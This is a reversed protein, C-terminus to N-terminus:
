DFYNQCCRTFEYTTKSHYINGSKCISSEFEKHHIADPFFQTEFCVAGHKLYIGGDKGKEGNLFNGTCLQLGPLDTYVSMQIGSEASELFAVKRYGKGKLVYNHDYGRGFLLAQYDKGVDQGIAKPARFDMPTGGVSVMEGTPISVEDAETYEDANIWVKHNLITGSKHGDLNFYSHNTMNIITDADPTSRYEIQVGNTDTLTYTIYIMVNGPYGQDMHPSFLSFTISNNQVEEVKWMRNKYFDLGSHLNNEGDNKDLKYIKEHIGFAAGGIRNANRGVAAGLFLTDTEYDKACDYGLIIDQERGRRDRVIVSVLTAGLDSVSMHMGASNEFTYLHATEGNKIKGFEKCIYSM